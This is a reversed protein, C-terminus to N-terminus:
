TVSERSKRSRGCGKGIVLKKEGRVRDAIAAISDKLVPMPDPLKSGRERYPFNFRVVEFGAGGLAQALAVM